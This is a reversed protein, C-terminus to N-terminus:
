LILLAGHKKYITSIEDLDSNAIEIENWKGLNDENIFIHLKDECRFVITRNIEFPVPGDDIWGHSDKIYHRTKM